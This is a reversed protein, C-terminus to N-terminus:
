DAPVCIAKVKSWTSPKGEKNIIAAAELCVNHSQYDVVEIDGGAGGGAAATFLIILKWM